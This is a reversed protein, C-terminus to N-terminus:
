QVKKTLIRFSVIAYRTQNPGPWSRTTLRDGNTSM